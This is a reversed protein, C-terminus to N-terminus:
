GEVSGKNREEEWLQVSTKLKRLRQLFSNSSNHVSKSTRSVLSASVCVTEVHETRITVVLVISQRRSFSTGDGVYQLIHRVPVRSVAPGGKHLGIVCQRHGPPMSQQRRCHEGDSPAKELRAADQIEHTQLISLAQQQRFQQFRQESYCSIVDGELVTQVQKIYLRHQIDQLIKCNDDRGSEIYSQQRHHRGVAQKFYGRLLGHTTARQRCKELCLYKFHLLCCKQKVNNMLIDTSDATLTLPVVMTQM